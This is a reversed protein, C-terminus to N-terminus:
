ALDDSKENRRVILWKTLLAVTVTVVVIDMYKWYKEIEHYHQHFKYGVWAWAFCWPAAGIIAYVLFRPFNMRYIGAPLSIFTRVLPIFRGWLTVHQGYKAFWQEGHEIERRRILLFKGYKALGEKGLKFGLWYNICSGVVTGLTGAFGVFGFILKGQHALSGGTPMIVESPIPINTSDLLMLLFIGPYGLSHVVSEAWAKLPGIIAEFM